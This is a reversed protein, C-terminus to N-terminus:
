KLFDMLTNKNVLTDPYKFSHSSKGDLTKDIKTKNKNHLAMVDKFLGFEHHVEIQYHDIGRLQCKEHVFTFNGLLDRNEKLLGLKLLRFEEMLQIYDTQSLKNMDTKFILSYKAQSRDFTQDVFVCM